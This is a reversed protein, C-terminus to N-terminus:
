AHDALDAIGCHQSRSNIGDLHSADPVLKFLFRSTPRGDCAVLIGVSVRAQSRRGRDRRVYVSLKLRPAVPEEFEYLGSRLYELTGSRRMFEITKGRFSTTCADGSVQTITVLDGPQIGAPPSTWLSSSDAHGTTYLIGAIKTYWQHLADSSFGISFVNDKVETVPLAGDLDPYAFNDLTTRPPGRTFYGTFAFNEATQDENVIFQMDYDKGKHVFWGVVPAANIVMPLAPCLFIAIFNIM